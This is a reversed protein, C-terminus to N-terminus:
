VKRVFVTLAVLLSLAAVGLAINTKTDSSTAQTPATKLDDIVTTISYPTASDSASQSPTQDWAVVSNDQYTQYAKWNLMGAATPAQASFAFDDRQGPPITGGSWTLATVKATDGTGSQQIDINWGPKVTPTVSTLGNPIVLRLITIPLDKENPVQTTFVQEAGVNVQSPKVEVHASAIAPILCALSMSLAISSRIAKNM